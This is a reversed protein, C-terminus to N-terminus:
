CLRKIADVLKSAAESKVVLVDAGATRVAEALEETNHMTLILIKPSPVIRRIHRATELGNMIPMSIDLIVIDPKLEEIKRIAEEGNEAEGCVEGLSNNTIISEIGRRLMEHDDVILIRPPAKPLSSDM